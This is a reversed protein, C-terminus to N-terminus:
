PAVAESHRQDALYPLDHCRCSIDKLKEEIFRNVRADDQIAAEQYGVLVQAFYDPYTTLGDQEM